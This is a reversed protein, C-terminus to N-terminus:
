MFEKTHREIGTRAKFENRKSVAMLYCQACSADPAADIIARSSRYVYNGCVCRCVWRKKIALSKGMVTLRGLKRGVMEDKILVFPLPVPSCVEGVESRYDFSKGRAMIRAATANVPIENGARM